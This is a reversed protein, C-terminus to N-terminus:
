KELLNLYDEEDSNKRSIRYIILDGYSLKNVRFIETLIVGYKESEDQTIQPEKFKTFVLSYLDKKFHIRIDKEFTDIDNVILINCKSYWSATPRFPILWLACGNESSSDKRIVKLAEIYAISTKNVERENFFSNVNQYHILAFYFTVFLFIVMLLNAVIVSRNRLLYYMCAIGVSSLFVMSFFVYRAEAHVLLGTAFFSLLGISGIWFLSVYNQRLTKRFIIIITAIIGIIATIGLVWGGIENPLWKIYNVLGEGLYQRQAAKGSLRLIGLPDKMIIYSELFHPTFLLISIILTTQLKSYSVNEKQRFKPLLIFFSLVVIVGLTTAVGYRIYFALAVLPGVFYISKSRGASEYHIYFLYLVGILFGSSPIDNFFRSAQQLFLSSTGVVGTVGLAVPVGFTRKFFLYIFLIALAGFIVGFIRVVKESDSFHLFIWGFSVMGIPRYIVFQDAPAGEMWSRAKTLYVSEDHDFPQSSVLSWLIFITGLFIFAPILFYLLKILVKKKNQGISLIM